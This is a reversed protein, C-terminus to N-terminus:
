NITNGNFDEYNIKRSINELLSNKNERAAIIEGEDISELNLPKYYRASINIVTGIKEDSKLLIKSKDIIKWPLFLAEKTDSTKCTIHINESACNHTITKEYMKSENNYTWETALITVTENGTSEILDIDSQANEMTQKLKADVENATKVDQELKKIVVTAEEFTGLIAVYEKIKNIFGNVENGLNNIKNDLNNTSETIKNELNIISENVKKDMNAIYDSLLEVVNGNEDLKTFIREVSLLNCGKDGYKYRIASGALSKHFYVRGGAYDVWYQNTNQLDEYNRVPYMQKNLVTFGELEDIIGTTINFKLPHIQQEETRTVSISSGNSDVNYKTIIGQFNELEM